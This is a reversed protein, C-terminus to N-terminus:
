CICISHKQKNRDVCCPSLKSKKCRPFSLADYPATSTPVRLTEIPTHACRVGVSMELGDVIDCPTYIPMSLQWLLCGSGVWWDVTLCQCDRSKVERVEEALIFVAAIARIARTASAQTASESPSHRSTCYLDYDHLRTVCSTCLWCHRM